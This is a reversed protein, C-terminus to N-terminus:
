KKGVKDIGGSILRLYSRSFVAVLPLIFNHFCRIDTRGPLLCIVKEVHYNIIESYAKEIWGRLTRGYPPNM